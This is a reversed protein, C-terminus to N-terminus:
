VRDALAVRLAGVLVVEVLVLDVRRGAAADPDDEHRAEGALLPELQVRDRDDEDVGAAAPDALAGPLEVYAHGPETHSMLMVSISCVRSASRCSARCFSPTTPSSLVSDNRDTTRM